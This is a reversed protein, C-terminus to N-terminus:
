VDHQMNRFGTKYAFKYKEDYSNRWSGNPSLGTAVAQGWQRM